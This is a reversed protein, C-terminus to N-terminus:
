KSTPPRKHQKGVYPEPDLHGRHCSGCTVPIGSNEITAVYNTNIDETMRYMTRASQKEQRSDDAYNMRPRGNPGIDKPNEVHCSRCTVGLDDAWQHMLTHVQEGTMNKPLVKLNTPAPHEHDEHPTANGAQPAAPHSTQASAILASALLAAIVPLSAASSKLRPM